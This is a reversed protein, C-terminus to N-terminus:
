AEPEPDYIDAVQVIELTAADQSYLNIEVVGTRTVVRLVRTSGSAYTRAEEIWIKKIGHLTIDM